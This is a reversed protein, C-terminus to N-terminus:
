ICHMAGDFERAKLQRLARVLLYPVTGKPDDLYGEALYSAIPAAFENMEFTTVLHTLRRWDEWVMKEDLLRMDKELLKSVVFAYDEKSLEFPLNLGM